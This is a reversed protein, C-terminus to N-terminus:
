PVVVHLLLKKRYEVRELKQREGMSLRAHNSQSVPCSKVTLFVPLTLLANAMRDDVVLLVTLSATFLTEAASGFCIARSVAVQIFSFRTSVATYPTQPSETAAGPRMAPGTRPSVPNPDPPITPPIDIEVRGQCNLYALGEKVKKQSDIEHGKAEGIMNNIM